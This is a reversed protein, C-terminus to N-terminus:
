NLCQKLVFDCGAPTVTYIYDPTWSHSHREMLGKAVLSECIPFDDSGEGTCFHNRYAPKNGQIGLAHSMVKFERATIEPGPM